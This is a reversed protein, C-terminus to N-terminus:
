NQNRGRNGYPSKTTMFVIAAVFAGLIDAYIDGLEFERSTFKEQYFEMATGYFSSVLFSLIAFLLGVKSVSARWILIMWTYLGFIGLHVIKDFHPIPIRSVSELSGTNISLLLFILGTWLISPWPTKLINNLM